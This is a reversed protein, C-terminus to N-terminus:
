FPLWLTCGRGPAWLAARGWRTVLRWWDHSWEIGWIGNGILVGTWQVSDRAGAMQIIRSWCTLMLCVFQLFSCVLLCSSDCYMRTYLFPLSLPPFPLPLCPLFLLSCPGHFSHFRPDACYSTRGQLYSRDNAMSRLRSIGDSYFEYSVLVFRVISGSV